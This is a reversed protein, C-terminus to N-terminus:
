TKKSKFTNDEIYQRFLFQNLKNNWSQITEIWSKIIGNFNLNKMSFSRIFNKINEKFKDLSSKLDHENNEDDDDEKTYRKSFIFFLILFFIFFFLIFFLILWTYFWNIPNDNKNQINLDSVVKFPANISNSPELNHIIEEKPDIMFKDM